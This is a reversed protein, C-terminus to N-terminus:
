AREVPIPGLKPTATVAIYSLATGLNIYGKRDQFIGGTNEDWEGIKFLTYDAAFRNFDMKEDNSAQEFKRVALGTSKDFFPPLYAGAKSDYICFIEHTKRWDMVKKADNENKDMTKWDM